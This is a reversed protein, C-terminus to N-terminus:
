TERHLEDLDDGGAGGGRHAPIEDRMEAGFPGRWSRRRGWGDDLSRRAGGLRRCAADLTGGIGDGEVAAAPAGRGAACCAATGIALDVTRAVAFAAGAAGPRLCGVVSVAVVSLLAGRSAASVLGCLAGSVLGCSVASVLCSAASALCSAASAFGCSVASVLAGSQSDTSARIRAASALASALRGVGGSFGACAAVATGAGAATTPAAGFGTSM